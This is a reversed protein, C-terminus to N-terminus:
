IIVYNNMKLSFFFGINTSLPLFIIKVNINVTLKQLVDNLLQNQKSCEVLQNILSLIDDNQNNSNNSMKNEKTDHLGQTLKSILSNNKMLMNQHDHRLKKLENTSLTYHFNKLFDFLYLM